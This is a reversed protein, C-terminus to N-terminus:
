RIVVHYKYHVTNCYIIYKIPIIVYYVSQISIYCIFMVGYLVLKFEVLFFKFNVERNTECV